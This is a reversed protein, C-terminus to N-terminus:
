NRSNKDPLLMIVIGAAGVAFALIYFPMSRARQQAKIEIVKQRGAEANEPGWTSLGSAFGSALSEGMTPQGKEHGVYGFVCALAVLLFGIVIKQRANM